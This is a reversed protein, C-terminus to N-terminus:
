ELSTRPLCVLARVKIKLKDKLIICFLNSSFLLVIIKVGIVSISYCINILSLTVIFHYCWTKKCGLFM